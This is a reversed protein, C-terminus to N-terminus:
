LKKELEKKITLYDQNKAIIQKRTLLYGMRKSGIVISELLYHFMKGDVIQHTDYDRHCIYCLCMGNDTDWRLTRNTRGVIHASNLRASSDFCYECTYNAIHKVVKSWLTDLKKIESKKM